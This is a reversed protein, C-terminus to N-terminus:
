DAGVRASARGARETVLDIIDRPVVGRYDALAALVHAGALREAPEGSTIGVAHMGARRAGEIGLPADEFVVCRAPDAGMRAAALLFLDPEPKGRAVDHAGCLADFEGEMGLGALAFAINNADGATACAIKVGEERARRAFSRFGEIERFSPRFLERYLAEKEHVLARTAEDSMAGFLDRMIEFGTRGATGRLFAEGDYRIGHRALFVEWSRGHWPMSDIITGDIDFIFAPPSGGSAAQPRRGGRSDAGGPRRTREARHANRAGGGTPAAPKPVARRDGVDRTSM